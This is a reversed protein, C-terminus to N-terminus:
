GNKGARLADDSFASKDCTKIANAFHGGDLQACLSTFLRKLRDAVPLPAKPAAKQRAARQSKTIPKAAPKKFTTPKPPM